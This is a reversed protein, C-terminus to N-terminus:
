NNKTTTSTIRMCLNLIRTIRWRLYARWKTIIYTIANNLVYKHSWTICVLSCRGNNIKLGSSLKLTEKRGRRFCSLTIVKWQYVFMFVFTLVTQCTEIFNVLDLLHCGYVSILFVIRYWYISLLTIKLKTFQELLIRM